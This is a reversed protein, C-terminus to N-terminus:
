ANWQFAALRLPCGTPKNCWYLWDFDLKWSTIVPIQSAHGLVVRIRVCVSFFLLIYTHSWCISFRFLGTLLAAFLCDEWTESPKIDTEQTKGHTPCIHFQRPFSSAANWYSTALSLRLPFLTLALCLTAFIGLPTAAGSHPPVVLLGFSELAQCYNQCLLIM